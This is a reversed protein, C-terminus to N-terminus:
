RFFSYIIYFHNDNVQELCIPLDLNSLSSLAVSAKKFLSM